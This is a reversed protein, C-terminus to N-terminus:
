RVTALRQSLTQYLTEIKRKEIPVSKGNILLACNCYSADDGSSLRWCKVEVTTGSDAVAAFGGVTEDWRSLPIAALQRLMEDEVTEKTRKPQLTHTSRKIFWGM